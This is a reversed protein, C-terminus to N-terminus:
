ICSSYIRVPLKSFCSNEDDAFMYRFMFAKFWLTRLHRTLVPFSPVFNCSIM